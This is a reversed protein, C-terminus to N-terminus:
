YSIVLLFKNSQISLFFYYYYCMCQILQFCYSFFIDYLFKDSQVNYSKPNGKYAKFANLLFCFFYYDTTTFRVKLCKHFNAKMQIYYFCGQSKIAKLIGMSAKDTTQTNIPIPSSHTIELSDVNNFPFSVNKEKQLVFFFLIIKLFVYFLLFLLLLMYQLWVFLVKLMRGLWM